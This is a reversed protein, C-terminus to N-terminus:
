TLPSTFAAPPYGYSSPNVTCFAIVIAPPKVSFALLISRRTSLGRSLSSSIRSAPAPDDKRADFVEVIEERRLKPDLLLVVTSLSEVESVNRIVAGQGPRTLSLRYPPAGKRITFQGLADTTVVQDDLRVEVGRIPDGSVSDRVEGRIHTEAEPNEARSPVAGGLLTLLSVLAAISFNRPQKM